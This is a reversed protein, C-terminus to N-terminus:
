RKSHLKVPKYVESALRMAGFITVRKTKNRKADENLKHICTAVLKKIFILDFDLSGSKSVVRYM